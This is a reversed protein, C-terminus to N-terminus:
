RRPAGTAGPAPGYLQLLYDRVEYEGMDREIAFPLKGEFRARARLQALYPDYHGPKLHVYTIIKGETYDSEIRDVFYSSGGTFGRVFNLEMGEGLQPTAPLRCSISWAARRGSVLLCHEVQPFAIFDPETEMATLFAQYLAELTRKFAPPQLGAHQQLAKATPLPADPTARAALADLLADLLADHGSQGRLKALAQPACCLDALMARTSVPDHTRAPM